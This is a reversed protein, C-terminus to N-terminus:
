IHEEMGRDYTVCLRGLVYDCNMNELRFEETTQGTKGGTKSDYTIM